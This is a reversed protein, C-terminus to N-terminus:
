IAEVEVYIESSYSYGNPNTAKIRYYYNGQNVQTDTYSMTPYQSTLTPNITAVNTWVGGGSPRRQIVFTQENTANDQWNLVVHHVLTPDEATLDSPAAPAGTPPSTTLTDSTVDGAMNFARIKYYITGGNIATDTHVIMNRNLTAITSFQQEGSKKRQVDFGIEDSSNDNWSLCVSKWSYWDPGLGDPVNPAASDYVVRYANLRGNAVCKNNLGAVLDARDIIRTKLQLYTMAPLEAWGLAATGTVYPAAMSTGALYQYDQNYKTSYINYVNQLSDEGGPAGIDVSSPGYNSFGSLGDDDNTSLVSLINDLNYSAPYLPTSDNNSSENGASAIFLRGATRARSIADLISQSFGALRYSNNSIHAGNSTAYDIARVIDPYETEGEYNFIKLPMLQVDWTVGAVGVNNNGRAGIIGAVHTGHYATAFDDMPANDDNWFDWGRWDDIYGNLDDDVGNTEKGNGCEGPNHWINDELDPHNYDIGTDIVAVVVDPSDHITDWAEPAHVDARQTGGSQGSNYLGWLRSFNTDNPTTLLYGIGNKEVYEVIPSLALASAANDAGIAEPVRIHL